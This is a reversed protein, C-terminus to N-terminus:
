SCESIGKQVESDKERFFPDTLFKEMHGGRWSM